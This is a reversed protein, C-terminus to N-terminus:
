ALPHKGAMSQCTSKIWIGGTFFILYGKTSTSVKVPPYFGERCSVFDTVIRAVSIIGHNPRRLERCDSLPGLNTEEIEWLRQVRGFFGSM